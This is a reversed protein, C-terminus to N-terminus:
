HFIAPTADQGKEAIKYPPAAAAARSPPERRLLENLWPFISFASGWAALLGTIVRMWWNFTGLYDGAYFGPASNGTLVALWANTDRFGSSSIGFFMDSAIHTAGDLVLPLLTLLFVKLPLPRRIWRRLLAYFLGFVPIMTYFSIMRDSWAVKWGMEPTGYFFRLQWPDTMPYVQQIESLTYTLKEGFLFWSRQPLQHCTPIYLTYVLEGLRTWGLAMLIPALFPLLTVILLSALVLALWRSFVFGV